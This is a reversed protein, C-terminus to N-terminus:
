LLSTHTSPLRLSLVVSRYNVEPRWDIHEVFRYGRANYMAILGTAHESTDLALERAGLHVARQEICRMLAAGVGQGQVAPDVCFQQFKAVESRNYWPGGQTRAPSQLTVTGLIQADRAALWTEGRQCREITDAVSQHSGWYHMGKAALPAYARHIMATLAEFDEDPGALRQVFAKM